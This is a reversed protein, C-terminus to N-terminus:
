WVMNAFPDSDQINAATSKTEGAREALTFPTAGSLINVSGHVVTFLGIADM